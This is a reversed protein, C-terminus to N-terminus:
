LDNKLDKKTIDKAWWIWNLADIIKRAQTYIYIYRYRINKNDTGDKTFISGLYVFETCSTIIYPFDKWHFIRFYPCSLNLGKAGSNNKKLKLVGQIIEFTFIVPVL